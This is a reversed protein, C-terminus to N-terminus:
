CGASCLEEPLELRDGAAIARARFWVHNVELAFRYDADPQHIETSFPQLDVLAVIKGCRDIFAASLPLATDRMWLGRGRGEFVLLLAEDAALSERGTLGQEREAATDAVEAELTATQGAANVLRLQVRDDSNNTCAISVVIFVYIFVYVILAILDRIHHIILARFHPPSTVSGPM